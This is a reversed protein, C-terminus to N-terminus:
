SRSSRLVVWLLPNPIHFGRPLLPLPTILRPIHVLLSPVIYRSTRLSRPRSSRLCLRMNASIMSVGHSMKAWPNLLLWEVGLESALRSVGPLYHSRRSSGEPSALPQTQSQSLRQGPASCAPGPPHVRRGRVPRSYSGWHMRDQQVRQMTWMPSRTLTQTTMQQGATSRLLAAKPHPLSLIRLPTIVWLPWEHM